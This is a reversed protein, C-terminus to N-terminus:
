LSSPPGSGRPRAHRGHSRRREARLRGLVVVVLAFVVALGAALFWVVVGRKRASGTASVAEDVPGGPVAYDWTQLRDGEDVEDPLRIGLRIPVSGGEGLEAALQEPTRGLPLGDLAAALDADSFQDLSGSLVVRGGVTWTTSAFADEIDITWERFIGDVGGVEDLVQQLGDPSGFPKTGRITLGGGEAAVFEVTWGAATLDETRLQTAPDGLRQSAERDLEASVTVSGSGDEAVDIGVSASVECGVLCLVAAVLACWM